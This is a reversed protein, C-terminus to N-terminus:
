APMGPWEAMPQDSRVLHMGAQAFREFAQDAAETYDVVGPVVVPSTCDELLYVKKALEPQQTNIDELFDAITWAVCHSKAQGAFIVANYEKLLRLFTASKSAIREGGPGDLVEPGIASYHETLPNNGKITFNAQQQRAITHFFVAEEFAPVLAHGISGVMVHYPWITLDYKQRQKLEETYHLLHDQGYEPTIALSDAVAPNFRWRGFLVDEYSVLTMPAPHNGESDVLFVPHFIMQATHTDLTAVIQTLNPLNRYLFTCLRQNDEVAGIGTRGGVFLEFGPICFTNQIDIGILAVRFRDRASPQIAHEIAWRHAEDARTQYPVPWIQGVKSPEFFPPLEIERFVPM